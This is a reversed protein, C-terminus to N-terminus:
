GSHALSAPRGAPAAQPVPWTQLGCPWHMAQSCSAPQAEFGEAGQLDPTCDHVVPAGRQRSPVSTGLPVLQPRSLTQWTPAQTLQAAPVTHLVLGVGQLRPVVTHLGDTAHASLPLTAAPTAHPEPWTHSPLPLQRAHVAPTLQLVLGPAGHLDPMVSQLVPVWRQMSEPLVEAPVVQPVPWTQLPVPAQTAQWAPAVQEPLGDAHRAPVMEHVVPEGVQTSPALRVAPRLQPAPWTHSPLPKQPAHTAPWLQLLLGPPAQLCPTVEHVLPAVWHTSPAAVVAPTEHPTPWTQLPEPLQTAHEAPWAHTPLGLAHATPMVLQVVPLWVQTSPAARAAPMVQPGLWTQEPVPTHLAHVDFVEHAVLGLGHMVPTVLQEM